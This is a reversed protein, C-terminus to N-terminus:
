NVFHSVGGHFRWLENAGAKVSMVSGVMRRVRQGSAFNWHGPLRKEVM